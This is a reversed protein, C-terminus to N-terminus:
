VDIKSQYHGRDWAVAIMDSMSKMLRVTLYVLINRQLRLPVTGLYQGDLAMSAVAHSLDRNV